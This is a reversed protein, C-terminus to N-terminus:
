SGGGLADLYERLVRRADDPSYGQKELDRIASQIREEDNAPTPGPAKPKRTAAREKPEDSRDSAVEDAQTRLPLPLAVWKKEIEFADVKLTKKGEPYGAWDASRRIRRRGIKAPSNDDIGFLDYYQEEVFIANAGLRMVHVLEYGKRKGLEYLSQLSAGVYDTKDWYNFPHFDVVALEPPKFRHNAEIMVVKPRYNHIAKWVYYDNSDIDIVLLDFDEPVGAEEFLLEINGPFIWAQRTTVGPYEAYNSALTKARNPNGEILLAGWGEDRIFVRTNAATVGDHAGFEVAYKTTPPIIEFIKELVGEEGFQSFETREAADLDVPPPSSCAVLFILVLVSLLTKM